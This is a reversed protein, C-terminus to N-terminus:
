SARREHRKGGAQRKSGDIKQGRTTKRGESGVTFASLMEHHPPLYRNKSIPIVRFDHSAPGSRGFLDIGRRIKAAITKKDTYEPRNLETHSFSKIKQIIQRIPMFYSLHWGRPKKKGGLLPKNQRRVLENIDRSIHSWTCLTSTTAPNKAQVTVNYYYMDMPIQYIGNPLNNKIRQLFKPDPIEDLDSLIIIDSARLQINVSNGALVSYIANRQNAERAWSSSSSSSSSSVSSGSTEFSIAQYFIKAQYQRFRDANKHYFLPKSLGTFTHMSEIIIFYDVVLNMVHLRYNLLELESSFIFADIIKRPQDAQDPLSPIPQPPPLSPPSVLLPNIDSIAGSSSSSSSSLPAPTSIDSTSINPSILCSISTTTVTCQTQALIMKLLTSFNNTVPGRFQPFVFSLM